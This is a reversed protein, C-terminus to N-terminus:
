VIEGPLVTICQPVGNPMNHRLKRAFLNTDHNLETPSPHNMGSLIVPKHKKITIVTVVFRTEDNRFTCKYQPFYRQFCPIRVLLKKVRESRYGYALPILISHLTGLIGVMMDFIPSIPGICLTYITAALASFWGIVLIIVFVFTVGALRNKIDPSSSTLSIYKKTMIYIRTYWFMMSIASALLLMDMWYLMVPSGFDYFCYAGSPM